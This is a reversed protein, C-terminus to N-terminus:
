EIGEFCSGAGTHCAPGHPLVKVLLADGDCDAKIDLVQQWNGSSEGKRWIQQRSRSWFVTRASKAMESLAQSNAYALTLVEGTTAQVIVPILGNSDFILGGPVQLSSM